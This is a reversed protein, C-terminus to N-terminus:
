KEFALKLSIQGNTFELSQFGKVKGSSYTLVKMEREREETAACRAARKVARLAFFGLM